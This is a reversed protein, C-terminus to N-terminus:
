KIYRYYSTIELIVGTKKKGIENWSEHTANCQEKDM